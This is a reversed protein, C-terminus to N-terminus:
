QKRGCKCCFIGVVIAQSRKDFGKKHGCQCNINILDFTQRTSYNKRREPHRGDKDELVSLRGRKIAAQKRETKGLLREFM